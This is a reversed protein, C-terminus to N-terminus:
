PATPLAAPAEQWEALFVNIEGPASGGRDSAFALYRGDASFM